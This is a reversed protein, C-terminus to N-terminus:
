RLEHIPVGRENLEFEVIGSIKQTHRLKACLERANGYSGIWTTYSIQMAGGGYINHYLGNKYKIGHGTRIRTTTM